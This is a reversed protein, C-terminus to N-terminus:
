VRLFAKSRGQVNQQVKRVWFKRLFNQYSLSFKAKFTSFSIFSLIKPLSHAAVIELSFSSMESPHSLAHRQSIKAFVKFCCIKTTEFFPCRRKLHRYDDNVPSRDVAIAVASCLILSGQMFFTGCLQAFYSLAEGSPIGIFLSSWNLKLLFIMAFIEFTAPGFIWLFEVTCVHLLM